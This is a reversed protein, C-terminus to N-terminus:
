QGRMRSLDRSQLGEMIQGLSLLAMQREAPKPLPRPRPEYIAAQVAAGVIEDEWRRHKLYRICDVPLDCHKKWEALGAEALLRDEEPMRCWFDMAEQRRDKRGRRAPYRDWFVLFRECLEAVSAGTAGEAM